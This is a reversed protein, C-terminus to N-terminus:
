WFNIQLKHKSRDPRLGLAMNIHLYYHSTIIIHFTEYISTRTKFDLLSHDDRDYSRHDYSLQYTIAQYTIINVSLFNVLNCGSLLSDGFIKTKECKWFLHIM